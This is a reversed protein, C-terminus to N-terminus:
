KLKSYIIESMNNSIGFNKINDRGDGHLTITGKCGAKIFRKEIKEKIKQNENQSLNNRNTTLYYARQGVVIPIQSINKGLVKPILYKVVAEANIQNTGFNCITAASACEPLNNDFGYKNEKPYNATNGYYVEGFILCNKNSNRVCEIIYNMYQVDQKFLHVSTRRWAILFGESYKALASLQNKLLQPDIFVSQNLSEEGGYAFFVRFGKSKIYQVLYSLQQSDENGDFTVLVSDYGRTKYYALNENLINLQEKNRPLKVESIMRFSNKLPITEFKNNKYNEYIKFWDNLYQNSFINYDNDVNRKDSFYAQIKRNKEANKELELDYNEFPVDVIIEGLTKHNLVIKVVDSNQPFLYDVKVQSDITLINNETYEIYKTDEIAENSVNLLYNNPLTEEILTNFEPLVAYGGTTPLPPLYEEINPVLSNWDISNDEQDTAVFYVGTAITAAAVSSAVVTKTTSTM